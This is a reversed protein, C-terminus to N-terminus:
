HTVFISMSATIKSFTAATFSLMFKRIKGFMERFLKLLIQSSPSHRIYKVSCPMLPNYYFQLYMMEMRDLCHTYNDAVTVDPNIFNAFPIYVPNCGYENWNARIEELSFSSHILIMICVVVVPLGFFLWLM